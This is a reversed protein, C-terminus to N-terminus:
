LTSAPTCLTLYYKLSNILACKNLLSYSLLSQWACHIITNTVIIITITVVIIVFATVFKSWFTVCLSKAYVREM